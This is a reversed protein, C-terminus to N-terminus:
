SGQSVLEFDMNKQRVFNQLKKRLRHIARTEVRWVGEVVGNQSIVEVLKMDEIAKEWGGLDSNFMRLAEITSWGKIFLRMSYFFDNKIESLSFYEGWLDFWMKRPKRNVSVLTKEEYELRSKWRNDETKTIVVKPNSGPRSQMGSMTKLRAITAKDEESLGKTVLEFVVPRYASYYFGSKKLLQKLYSKDIEVEMDMRVTSNDEKRAIERYSMVLDDLNPYLLEKKLLPVPKSGLIEKTQLTLATKFAQTTLKQETQKKQGGATLDKEVTVKQGAHAACVHIVGAFIINLLFFLFSKKGM